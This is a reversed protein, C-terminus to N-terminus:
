VLRRVMYFAPGEYTHLNALQAPDLRDWVQYGLREWFGRSGQVSLLASYALGASVAHRWACQVLAPGIGQGKCRAAVALDHLYLADAEAVPDFAGDLPTVKGVVSRYAMLYACVGGEEQAVWASDPAARLRSRITAEDEHM